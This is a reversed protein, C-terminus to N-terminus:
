GLLRVDAMVARHDSLYVGNNVNSLVEYRDVAWTKNGTPGLWLFDIRGASDSSSFGTYTDFPGFRQSSNAMNYVETLFGSNQMTSYADGGPSSNFDGSLTVGLNGWTALVDKITSIIVKTGESRAKSSVNDLHTNAALIRTGSSIHEFVGVTVVRRSGANWGFSPTDPTPSLWKTENFLCRLEAPRFLIASYEGAKVGDDRGVGIHQWAPGLGTLIDNLQADLAEQLGILVVSSSANAAAQSLQSVVLSKRVSWPKENSEFSTTAYRINFTLRRLHLGPLSQCDTVGAQLVVVVVILLFRLLAPIQYFSSM